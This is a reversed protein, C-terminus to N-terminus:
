PNKTDVELTEYVFGDTPVTVEFQDIIPYVHEPKLPANNQPPSLNVKTDITVYDPGEELKLSRIKKNLEEFHELVKKLPDQTPNYGIVGEINQALWATAEREYTQRIPICIRVWPSNLFEHRRNDGDLQILWGLSSGLPAPESDASIEYGSRRFGTSTSSYRPKWWAPYTYIFMSNIDMYKQFYEIELPSIEAPDHKKGFLYSIMRNMIEYREEQRLDQAARPMIKSKETILTKAKEFQQTLLEETIKARAAKCEESWATMVDDAPVWTYSYSISVSNSDGKKVMIKQTYRYNGADIVGGEFRIPSPAKDHKGGGELDSISDVGIATVKRGPPVQFMVDIYHEITGNNEQKGLACTTTGTDTGGQPRPSVGPPIDPVSIPEAERFHVFKSLALGEGPNRIYLQWVLREGLDQVKVNVKKLVRRLGYNVPKPSTNTIKRRTSSTVREEYGDTTKIRLSKTIRESARKTTDELRRVAIERGRDSSAKMDVSASAGASWVGISGSANASMATATDRHIMSSVKDSVEDQLKAEYAMESVSESGLEMVEEHTQKRMNEYFVELTEGPAVTFAQEIPGVGETDNFYIQRYLHAIGLPSLQESIEVGNLLIPLSKIEPNAGVDQVKKLFTDNIVHTLNVPGNMNAQLLLTQKIEKFLEKRVADFDFDSDDSGISGNIFVPFESAVSASVEKGGYGLYDIPLEPDTVNLFRSKQLRLASNDIFIILSLQSFWKVILPEYVAVTLSAYADKFLELKAVEL